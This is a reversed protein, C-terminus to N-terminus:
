GPADRQLAVGINNNLWGIFDTKDIQYAVGLERWAPSTLVVHDSTEVIVPIRQLARDARMARVFQMGNMRPMHFNSIVLDVHHQRLLELGQMGDEAELVEFERELILHYLSRTDPDDEVVLISAPRPEHGLVEAVAARVEDATAPKQVYGVAGALVADAQRRAISIFMVRPGGHSRLLRTFAIGDMEPMLIDAVILDPRFKDLHELASRGSEYGRVEHGLASLAATMWELTTPEDDLLLLKAM